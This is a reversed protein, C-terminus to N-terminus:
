RREDGVREDRLSRDIGDVEFVRVVEAGALITLAAIPHEGLSTLLRVPDGDAREGAAALRSRDRDPHVLPPEEELSEVECVLDLIRGPYVLAGRRLDAVLLPRKSLPQDALQRPGLEM